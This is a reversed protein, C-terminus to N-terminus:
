ISILLRYQLLFSYPLHIQFQEYLDWVTNKEKRKKRKKKITIEKIIKDWKLGWKLDFINNSFSFPFNFAIIQSKPKALTLSDLTFIEKKNEKM